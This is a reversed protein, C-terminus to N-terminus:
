KGKWQWMVLPRGGVVQQFKCVKPEKKRLNEIMKWLKELTKEGSNVRIVEKLDDESMGHTASDDQLHQLQSKINTFLASAQASIQRNERFTYLFYLFFLLFLLSFSLFYPHNQSFLTIEQSFSLRFTPMKLIFDSSIQLKGRYEYSSLQKEVLNWVDSDRELGKETFLFRIERLSIVFEERKEVYLRATETEVFSEIELLLSHARYVLAKNELCQRGERLYPPNCVFEGNVCTAHVPCPECPELQGEGCYKVTSELYTSVLPQALVALIVIFIVLSICPLSSSRTESLTSQMAKSLLVSSQHRRRAPSLDLNSIPRLPSRSHSRPTHAGSPSVERLRTLLESTSLIRDKPLPVGKQALLAMLQSRSKINLDDTSM